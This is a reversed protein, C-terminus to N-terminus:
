GFLEDYLEKINEGYLKKCLKRNPERSDYTVFDLLKKHKAEMFNEISFLKFGQKNFTKYTTSKESLFVSKGLYLSVVTNGVAQQRWHNMFVLDCSDVIKAYDKGPLFEFLPKFKDGFMKKGLESIKQIYNKDGYSLPVIVKDIETVYKQLTRFISVHNNTPTGSNGVLISVKEKITSQHELLVSELTNFDVVSPYYFHMQRANSSFNKVLLEFDGINWTLIGELRSILSKKYFLVKKSVQDNLNLKNEFYNVTESDYVPLDIYSYLDAGWLIWFLKQKGFQISEFFEAIFDFLYHIYIQKSGNILRYLEMNLSYRNLEIAPARMLQQDNENAFFDFSNIGTVLIFFHDEKPHNSRIYNYFSKSYMNDFIFHLNKYSKTNTSCKPLIEHNYKITDIKKKVRERYLDSLEMRSLEEYCILANKIDGREEFQIAKQYEYSVDINLQLHHLYKLSDKIDLKNDKLLARVYSIRKDFPNIEEYGLLYGNVDKILGNQFYYQVKTNFYELEKLWRIERQIYDNVFLTQGNFFHHNELFGHNSLQCAIEDYYMSAVLIVISDKNEKLVFNGSNVNLGMFKTGNKKMDNDLFSYVENSIKNYINEGLNGCGFIFLKKDGFSEFHYKKLTNM